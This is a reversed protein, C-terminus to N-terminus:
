GGQAIHEEAEDEVQPITERVFITKNISGDWAEDEKFEVDTNIIVKKTMPNYLKYSKSEDIYGLFIIKESRYDLKRKFEKPVCAYPVCGFVRFQAVSCSMVKLSEQPVENKVSKTPSKNLVYVFCTVVEGWFDNSLHKEKLMSRAMNM